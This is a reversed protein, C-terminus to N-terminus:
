TLHAEIWNRVVALVQEREPENHTEHFLGEWPVFTVDGQIRACFDRTAAFSTLRDATGHFALLPLKWDAAHAEAWLGAEFTGTFMAASILDHVLPDHTYQSVEGPLRSIATADLKTHQVFGPAIKVALRGLAVQIAPPEFALRLWPSSAIVGKVAPHRRLATNLVINGGMSHGYLFLPLGPQAQTAHAILAMAGDMFAEYNPVHGRKGETKGHGPLDIAYVGIGAQGLFHAVHDYRALHEGHGHVLCVVAKLPANPLWSAAHLSM